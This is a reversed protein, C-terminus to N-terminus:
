HPSHFNSFPFNLFTTVMSVIIDIIIVRILETKLKTIGIYREYLNCIFALSTPEIPIIPPESPGVDIITVLLLEYVYIIVTM